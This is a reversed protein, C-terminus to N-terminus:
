VGIDEVRLLGSGLGAVAWMGYKLNPNWALATVASKEEFVTIGKAVEPNSKKKSVVSHQIGPQVAKYGESIRALPNDLFSQPVSSSPNGVPGGEGEVDNMNVDDGPNNSNILDGVPGRWEHAFWTQQWPITKYNTIRGIPNSAEIRGDAGGILIAPHVPSAACRTISSNARMSYLNHYYRRIPNHKLMYQEDPAIFSQTQEHWDQTYCLTRGRISATTDANPTRIDYLRAFGDATTISIFHPQSPWGSSLSLIYTDSLQHYFWPKPSQDPNQTSSFLDPQSLTWIALTGIATGAALTTGSLWRLCTPVTQPITVDFAAQSIHLYQTESSKSSYSVHLIRVHGDSWIGALLGIHVNEHGETMSGSNDPGVPCWRFYKPAGWDTCIVLQLRPQKEVDLEGKENADLAWMQLSAPFQTTASFAPAKPDEMLKPDLGATDRQEVAVALYQTDGEENPAWQADQIRSGLNFLWGRRNKKEKFPEAINLYTLKKLAYVQPHDVPGCLVNLSDEGGNALYVAAEDATLSTCKQASAFVDRGINAYWERTVKTEKDRAEPKEHFSRRLSSPKRTPLTEQAAWHDRTLLIAKLDENKPGFLDKLRVEQGGVKTFDAVGRTRLTSETVPRESPKVRKRPKKELARGKQRRGDTPGPTHDSGVEVINLEPTVLRRRSDYDDDDDDDDDNEAVDEDSDEEVVDEDFDDEPGEDGDPMFDDEEQSEDNVPPTQTGSAV